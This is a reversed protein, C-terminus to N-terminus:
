SPTGNGSITIVLPGTWRPNYFAALFTHGGQITLAARARRANYGFGSGSSINGGSTDLTGGGALLPIPLNGSSRM